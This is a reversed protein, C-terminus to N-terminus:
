VYNTVVCQRDCSRLILIELEPTVNRPIRGEEARPTSKIIREGLVMLPPGGMTPQMNVLEYKSSGEM